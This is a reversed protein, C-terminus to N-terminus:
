PSSSVSPSTASSVCLRRLSHPPLEKLVVEIAHDRAVNYQTLARTTPQWRNIMRKAVNCAEVSAPASSVVRAVLPAADASLTSLYAIDPARGAPPHRLQARAVIMEPNAANLAFLAVFGSIVAMAAFPKSWGRLVTLAMCLFVFGLWGMFVLAYLRDVSLGYYSVYLQMRVVASVMIAGLLGLLPLALRRHRRIAAEDGEIAARSALIVPAVLAAVVVLEFFGRRAYEAVSLNMTRRVVEAGGFLWRVQMGVFLAFLANLAGLAATVDMRSLRFPSGNGPTARWSSDILAGRMWGACVWTALLIVIGHSVISGFEWGPLTFLGAFVPDAQGLLKGFIAVLPLTVVLARIVDVRRATSHHLAEYMIADRSWLRAAGGLGDKAGYLWAAALDRIRAGIVSPQPLRAFSMSLMVLAFVSAMWDALQLLEADRWAFAAACGLAVASWAVQERSLPTGRRIALLAITFVLAAVWIAWGIGWPADRLVADTLAGLLLAEALVFRAFRVREETRAVDFGAVEAAM